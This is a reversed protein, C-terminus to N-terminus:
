VHERMSRLSPEVLTRQQLAAGRRASQLGDGDRLPRDSLLALRREADGSVLQPV